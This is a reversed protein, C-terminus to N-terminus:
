QGCPMVEALHMHAFRYFPCNDEPYYLWCKSGHPSCGRIGLGIIHSSSRQLASGWEAKGVWQLLTDLPVTSLLAEYHVASGDSFTVTQNAVDISVATRSYRQQSQPLLASVAKWISGTGGETPFRCVRRSAGSGGRQCCCCPVLVFTSVLAHSRWPRVRRPAGSAEIALSISQSAPACSALNSGWPSLAGLYLTRVGAQM